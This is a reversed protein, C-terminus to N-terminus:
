KYARKLASKFGSLKQDIKKRHEMGRQITIHAKQIEETLGDRILTLENIKERLEEPTTM